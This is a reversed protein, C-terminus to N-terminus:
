KWVARAAKRVRKAFTEPDDPNAWLEWPLAALEPDSSYALDQRLEDVYGVPWYDDPESCWAADALAECALCFRGRLVQGQCLEVLDLYRTGPQIPAYCCECVHRKRATRRHDIVFGM